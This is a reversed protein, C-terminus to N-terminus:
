VRKAYFGSSGLGQTTHDQQHFLERRFCKNRRNDRNNSSQQFFGNTSFSFDSSPTTSHRESRRARVMDGSQEKKLHKSLFLEKLSKCSKEERSGISQDSIDLQSGSKESSDELELTNDESITTDNDKSLYDEIIAVCSHLKSVNEDSVQYVFRDTEEVFGLLALLEKTKPNELTESPFTADDKRIISYKQNLPTMTLNSVIDKLTHIFSDFNEKSNISTQVYCLYQGVLCNKTTEM